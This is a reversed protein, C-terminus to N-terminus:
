LLEEPPVQEGYATLPRGCVCRGTQEVVEQSLIRGCAGCRVAPGHFVEGTFACRRGSGDEAVGALRFGDESGDANWIRVLDGSRLAQVGGLVAFGNVCGRAGPDGLCLFVERGLVRVCPPNEVREWEPPADATRPKTAYAQLTTM